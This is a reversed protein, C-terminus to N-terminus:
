FLAWGQRGVCGGALRGAGRRRAHAARHVHAGPLSCLRPRRAGGGRPLAAPTTHPGCDLTLVLELINRTDGCGPGFPPVGLLMGGVWGVRGAGGVKVAWSECGFAHGFQTSVPEVTHSYFDSVSALARRIREIVAIAQLAPAPPVLLCRALPMVRVFHRVAAQRLRGAQM